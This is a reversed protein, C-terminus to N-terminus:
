EFQINLEFGAVLNLEVYQLMISASLTNTDYDPNISMNLLNVRPDSNIVRTLETEFISMSDADLPEFLLDPISTGFSPQMVRSGKPTFIQNLLDQKVLDVDKLSFSVNPGSTTTQSVSISKNCVGYFKTSFGNYIAM